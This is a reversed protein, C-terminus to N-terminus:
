LYNQNLLFNLIKLFHLSHQIKQIQLFNQNM